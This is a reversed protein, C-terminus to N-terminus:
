KIVNPLLSLQPPSEGLLSVTKITLETATCSLTLMELTQDDIISKLPSIPIIGICTKVNTECKTCYRYLIQTGSNGTTVIRVIIIADRAHANM